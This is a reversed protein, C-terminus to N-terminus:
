QHKLNLIEKALGKEKLAEIPFNWAYMNEPEEDFNYLYREIADLFYPNLTEKIEDADKDEFNQRFEFYDVIHMHSEEPDPYKSEFYNCITDAMLIDGFIGLKKLLKDGVLKRIDEDGKRFSKYMYFWNDTPRIFIMNKNPTIIIYNEGMFGNTTYTNSINQIFKNMSDITVNLTQKEVVGSCRKPLHL